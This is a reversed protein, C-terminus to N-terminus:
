FEEKVGKTEHTLGVILKQIFKYTSDLDDAVELLESKLESYAANADEIQVQGNEEYKNQIIDLISNIRRSSERESKAHNDM